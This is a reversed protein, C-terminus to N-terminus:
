TRARRRQPFRDLPTAAGSAVVRTRRGSDPRSAVREVVAVSRSPRGPGCAAREARRIADCSLLVDRHRRTGRLVPGSVGCRAGGHRALTSSSARPHWVVLPLVGGHRSRRGAVPGHALPEADPLVGAPSDPARRAGPRSPPPVGPVGWARSVVIPGTDRPQSRPLGDWRIRCKTTQARVDSLWDGHGIGATSDCPLFTLSGPAFQGPCDAGPVIGGRTDMVHACPPLANMSDPTIGTEM